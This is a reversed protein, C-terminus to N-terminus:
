CPRRATSAKAVGAERRGAQRAQRREQRRLARDKARQLHSGNQLRNASTSGRPTGGGRIAATGLRKAKMPAALSALRKSRSFWKASSPGVTSTAAPRRGLRLHSHAPPCIDRRDQLLPCRSLGAQRLPRPQSSTCTICSSILVPRAERWRRPYRTLERNTATHALALNRLWHGGLQWCAVARM